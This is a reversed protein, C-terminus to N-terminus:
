FKGKASFISAIFLGILLVVFGIPYWPKWNVTNAFVEIFFNGIILILFLPYSQRFGIRFTQFIGFSLSFLAIVLWVYELLIGYSDTQKKM